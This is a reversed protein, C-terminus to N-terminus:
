TGSDIDITLCWRASARGRTCETQEAHYASFPIHSHHFVASSRYGAQRGTRRCQSRKACNGGAEVPVQGFQSQKKMKAGRPRCGAAGMRGRNPNTERLETTPRCGRCTQPGPENGGPSRCQSRKACNGGAEVPTQQFQSQKKMKPGGQPSARRGGDQGPKPENRVM